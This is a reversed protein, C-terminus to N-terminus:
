NKHKTYPILNLELNKKKGTTGAGNKSFALKRWLIANTQKIFILKVCTHPYLWRSKEFNKKQQIGLESNSKTKQKKNNELM